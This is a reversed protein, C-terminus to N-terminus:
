TFVYAQALLLIREFPTGTRLAEVVAMGGLGDHPRQLFMLKSSAAQGYLLRCIRFSNAVGLALLEIPFYASEDVWVEFLDGRQVAVEIDDSGVQWAHALVAQSVLKGDKTWTVLRAAGRTRADDVAHDNSM